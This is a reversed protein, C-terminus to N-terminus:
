ISHTSVVVGHNQFVIPEKGAPTDISSLDQVVLLLLHM